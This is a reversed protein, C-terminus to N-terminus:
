EDKATTWHEKGIYSSPWLLVLSLSTRMELFLNSSEFYKRCAYNIDCPYGVVAERRFVNFVSKLSDVTRKSM